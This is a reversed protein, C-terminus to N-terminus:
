QQPVLGRLQGCEPCGTVYVIGLNLHWELSIRDGKEVRWRCDCLPCAVERGEITTPDALREPFKRAGHRIVTAM